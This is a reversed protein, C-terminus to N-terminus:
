PLAHERRAVVLLALEIQEGATDAGDHDHKASKEAHVAFTWRGVVHRQRFCDGLARREIARREHTDYSMHTTLDWDFWGANRRHESSIERSHLLQNRVEVGVVFTGRLERK